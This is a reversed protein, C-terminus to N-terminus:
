LRSSPSRAIFLPSGRGRNLSIVGNVVDRLKECRASLLEAQRFQRNLPRLALLSKTRSLLHPMRFIALAGNVLAFSVTFLGLNRYLKRAETQLLQHLFIRLKLASSKSKNSRFSSHSICRTQALFFAFSRLSRRPFFLLGFFRKLRSLVCSSRGLALHLLQCASSRFPLLLLM